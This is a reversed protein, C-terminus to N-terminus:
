ARKTTEVFKLHLQYLLTKMQEAEQPSLNGQSKDSLMQVIDILYKAHPFNAETKGTVPNPTLGLAMFAQMALESVFSLFDAEPQAPAETLPQASIEREKQVSDKWSEDVKKHIFETSKGSDEVM